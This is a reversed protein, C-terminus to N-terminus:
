RLNEPRPPQWGERILRAREEVVAQELLGCFQTVKQGVACQRWGDAVMREREAAAVLAAFDNLCHIFELYDLRPGNFWDMLGSEHALRKIDERNM